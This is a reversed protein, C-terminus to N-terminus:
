TLHDSSQRVAYQSPAESPSLVGEGVFDNTKLLFVLLAAGFLAAGCMSYPARILEPIDATAKTTM